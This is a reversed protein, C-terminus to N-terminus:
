DLISKCIAEVHSVDTGCCGGLVKLNPLSSKLVRHWHGLNRPNGKDLETAEDLEAHSKCSANVRLGHIRNKWSENTDFLHFFHSPHACNIMYYLPFGNTLDDLKQIAENLREGSPLKGDVEVTFSIVVPLDYLQAARVIGLAEESYTMTIATVIDVNVEKFARIQLEHYQAAEGHKLIDKVVYGDGKPGIQGSIKIEPIRNMYELKLEHMRNIGLQNIKILSEATYGLKKGWDLNARWTPSELVFGLGFNAALDLYDRYYNMLVENQIANKLLPFAAFEILPIGHHYILDTELGGDTLYLLDTTEKM